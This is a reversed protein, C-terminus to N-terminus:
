QYSQFSIEKSTDGLVDIIIPINGPRAAKRIEAYDNVFITPSHDKSVYLDVFNDYLFIWDHISTNGHMVVMIDRKKLEDLPYHDLVNARASDAIRLGYLFYMNDAYKRFYVDNSVMLGLLVLLAAIKTV